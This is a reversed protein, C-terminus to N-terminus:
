PKPPTHRDESKAGVKDEILRFAISEMALNGKASNTFSVFGWDLEPVWYVEASHAMTSGAHFWAKKGQITGHEWGLAYGIAISNLTFSPVPIRVSIIEALATGPEPAPESLLHRVWKVYDDVTAVMAGAGFSNAMNMRPLQVQSESESDWFYGLAVPNGSADAKDLDWYANTIGLPSLLTDSVVDWWNRGTLAELAHTLTVYMLNCYRWVDRPESGFSLHRLTRVIDKTTRSDNSSAFTFDHSALGTRHSAADELTVHDNAWAESLVLNM